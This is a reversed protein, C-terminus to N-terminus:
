IDLGPLQLEAPVIRGAGLDSARALLIQTQDLLVILQDAVPSSLLDESHDNHSEHSSTEDANNSESATITGNLTERASQQAEVIEEVQQTEEATLSDLSRLARIHCNLHVLDRNIERSVANVLRRTWESFTYLLDQAAMDYQSNQDPAARLVQYERRARERLDEVARYESMMYYDTASTTGVEGTVNDVWYAVYNDARDIYDRIRSSTTPQRMISELILPRRLIDEHTLPPPFDLTFIDPANFQAESLPTPEFLAIRDNPCSGRRPSTSTFWTLLCERHFFCGSGHDIKVVQESHDCPYLCITCQLGAPAESIRLINEIFESQTPLAM